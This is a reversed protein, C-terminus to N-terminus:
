QDSWHDSWIRRNLNLDDVIGLMLRLDEYYTKVQDFELMSRYLRPEFLNRTLPIAIYIRDGVLAMHLPQNVKNRFNVLRAMLSTSLAYRAEIQDDAYVEFLKEFEPDELRVVEGRFRNLFRTKSKLTDPLIVTRGKLRKNFRGRFFLGMFVLKRSNQGESYNSFSRSSDHGKDTYGRALYSITQFIDGISPGVQRKESVATNLHDLFDPRQSEVLVESFTFQTDGIKGTVTDEQHLSLYASDREDFLQSHVFDEIFSQLGVQTFPQYQFHGSLDIFQIIKEIVKSKFGSRYTEIAAAVFTAWIWLGILGTVLALPLFQHIQLGFLLLGGCAIAWIATAVAITIETVKRKKEYASLTFALNKRFFIRLEDLSRLTIEAEVESHKQPKILEQIVPETQLAELGVLFQLAWQQVLADAHTTLQRCLELANRIQNGGKYARVLWMQAQVYHADTSPASQCFQELQEIAEPYRHQKLAAEGAQLLEEPSPPLNVRKLEALGDLFRQAWNRTAVDADAILRQGIQRAAEIQGNQKHAIALSMQAETYVPHKPDVYQCFQEIAAIAEPYCKQKLLKQWIKAQQALERPSLHAM